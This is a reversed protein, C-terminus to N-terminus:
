SDSRLWRLMDGIGFVISALSAAIILRKALKRRDNQQSM